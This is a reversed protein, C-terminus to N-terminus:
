GLNIIVSMKCEHTCCPLLLGILLIDLKTTLSGASVTHILSILWLMKKFSADPKLVPVLVLPNM